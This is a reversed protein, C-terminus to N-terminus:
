FFPAMFIVVGNKRESSINKRWFSYTEYSKWKILPIESRKEREKWISLVVSKPKSNILEKALNQCKKKAGSEDSEAFVIYMCLLRSIIPAMFSAKDRVIEQSDSFVSLMESVSQELEENVEKSVSRFSFMIDQSKRKMRLEAVSSYEELFRLMIARFISIRTENDVNEMDSLLNEILNYFREERLWLLRSLEEPQVLKKTKKRKM